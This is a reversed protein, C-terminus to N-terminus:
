GGVREGDSWVQRMTALKRKIGDGIRTSIGEDIFMIGYQLIELPRDLTMTTIGDGRTLVPIWDKSWSDANPQDQYIMQDIAMVSGGSPM